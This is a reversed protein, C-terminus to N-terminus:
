CMLNWYNRLAIIRNKWRIQHLEGSSQTFGSANLHTGIMRKIPLGMKKHPVNRKLLATGDKLPEYGDKLIDCTKGSSAARRRRSGNYGRGGGM